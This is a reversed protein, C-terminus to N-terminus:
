KSSLSRELRSGCQRALSAFSPDLLTLSLPILSSTSAALRDRWSGSCHAMLCGISLSLQRSFFIPLLGFRQETSKFSGNSLCLSSHRVPPPHDHDTCPWLASRVSVLLRPHYHLSDAVSSANVPDPLLLPCHSLSLSSGLSLVQPQQNWHPAASVLATQILPAPGGFIANAINYASVRTLCLLSLAALYKGIGM